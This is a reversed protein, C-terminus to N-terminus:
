VCGCGGLLRTAPPPHGTRGGDLYRSPFKEPFEPELARRPASTAHHFLTRAADPPREPCLAEAIQESSLTRGPAMLLFALLEGARRQRLVRMELPHRGQRVELRGLTQVRLSLPPVRTLHDLLTRGVTM